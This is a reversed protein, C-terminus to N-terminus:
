VPYGAAEEANLARQILREKYEEPLDNFYASFGWVRVILNKYKEPHKRAEILTASDMVNMQLQYFGRRIAGKLFIEFKEKNDSLINPQVFFDVVNGNINCGGYALDGAFGILETYGADEASIHTNYPM